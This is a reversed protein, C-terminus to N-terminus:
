IYNETSQSKHQNGRTRVAPVVVLFLKAGKDENGGTHYKYVDTLNGRLRRKELSFLGLERLKDTNRFITDLAKSFNYYVCGSEGRM